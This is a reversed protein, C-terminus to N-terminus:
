GIVGGGCGWVGGDARGGGGGGGGGGGRFHFLIFTDQSWISMRLLGLM